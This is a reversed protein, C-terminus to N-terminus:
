EQRPGTGKWAKGKDGREVVCLVRTSQTLGFGFGTEDMNYIQGPLYHHKNILTGIEAFWPALQEPSATM